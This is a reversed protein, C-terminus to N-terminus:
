QNPSLAASVVNSIAGTDPALRLRFAPTTKVLQSLVDLHVPIMMQDWQEISHPLLLRLAEPQNVPELLHSSRAEILPFIIAGAEAAEAWVDPWIAEAPLVIKQSPTRGKALARTSPFRVLTSPYAAILGPYSQITAPATIIPSDNSLLRWGDHLLALGTTTKGAGIPGVILVGKPQALGVPPQVAGFAHILFKGRRRLHPSLAIAVLDEFIAYADLAALVLYGATHGSELDFSLQGYYPFHVIVTRGAIYYELLGAQSFNPKARPALPMEGVLELRLSIDPVQVTAPRSGFAAYWREGLRPDNWEALISLGHLDWQM